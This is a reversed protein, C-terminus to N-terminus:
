EPLSSTESRWKMVRVFRRASRSTPDDLVCAVLRGDSSFSIREPHAPSFDVDIMPQFLDVDSATHWLTLVGGQESSVLTHGSVSSALRILPGHAGELNFKFRWDATSWVKILRDDSATAVWQALPDFAICNISSSHGPLEAVKQQTQVNWVLVVNAPGSAFLWQGDPSFAACNCEQARIRELRKGSRADMVYLDDHKESNYRDIAAVVRGDPSIAIRHVNFNPGLKWESQRGGDRLDYVRVVGNMTGVALTSGDRSAGLCLIRKETKGLERIRVMSEPDWLSIESGGCVALQNSGPVFQIDEVELSAERLDKFYEGSRLSWAIVCGDSGATILEQSKQSVVFAYIPDQHAGWARLRTESQEARGSPSRDIDTPCVRVTGVKDGALISSGGPMFAVRQAQDLLDIKNALEWSPVRWIRIDHESTSAAFLGGDRSFDISLVPPGGVPVRHAIKHSDLDWVIVDHDHGASALWKGGPHLAISGATDLHGKLEGDPQGTATKWLRIVTDRGASILTRGEHAFLVNFVQRPHAKISRLHRAKRQKWDVAWLAITGDDGASALTSGDPSLALGNIEGQHAEISFLLTSAASDYIGIIGAKGAAALYREDPSLCVFYIAQNARAILRHTVRGRRSLFDWEGGQYIEARDRPRHRELLSTFRRMDGSQLATGAQQMDSVYLLEDAKAREREATLQLERAHAAAADKDEGAKLLQANAGELRDNLRSLRVNAATVTLIWVCFLFTVVLSSAARLPYRHSWLWAREWPRVSRATIPERKLFHQLDEGLLDATAYRRDPEKALCKLCILELDHPVDPRIRRIPTPEDTLVRRLIDFRSGGSIPAIGTLMEYLIAGLGYVDTKPSTESDKGSAQEPAMYAATGVVADTHTATRSDDENFVKCIGFDCLKPTFPFSEPMPGSQASGVEEVRTVADKDGSSGCSRLPKLLVNAPKVDRHLIAHAHAHALAKSLEMTVWAAADPKIKQRHDRLWAALSPGDCLEQVIYCFTGDFGAELVRVINPHDLRAVAQAEDVFRRRLSKSLLLDPRPIKLAIPRNLAPDRALYVIGHGGRGLERFVEFRGLRNPNGEDGNDKDDLSQAPQGFLADPTQQQRYRRVRAVLELCKTAPSAAARPSAGSTVLEQPLGEAANCIKAIDIPLDALAEKVLSDIEFSDPESQAHEISSFGLEEQLRAFACLWLNRTEEISRNLAGSVEELSKKDFCAFEIVAQYDAPMRRMAADFVEVEDAAADQTSLGPAVRDDVRAREAPGNAGMSNQEQEPAPTTLHDDM